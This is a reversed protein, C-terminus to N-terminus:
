GDQIALAFYILGKKVIQDMMAFALPTGPNIEEVDPNLALMYGKSFQSLDIMILKKSRADIGFNFGSKRSRIVKAIKNSSLLQESLLIFGDSL